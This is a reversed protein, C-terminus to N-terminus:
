KRLVVEVVDLSIDLSRPSATIAGLSIIDPKAAAYDLINEETIGGSVEILIKSRLKQVELKKITEKIQNPTMNDLMVIDVGTKSAKVADASTTVEVEIKKTFSATQRANKIANVISGAIKLHNDKILILDDLHLRHTDGGGIMVAKKDFYLLGPATKRTSAVKTTYGASEIKKILKNTESAIGSMRSVINLLTREVMLITRADGLIEMIVTGAKIKAGDKIFLKTKLDVSELLIQAEEVGAIVGSEKALIQAKATVGSPVTSLTTLDGQGIDEEIFSKLKEELLRKPLAM